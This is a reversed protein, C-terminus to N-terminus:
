PARWVRDKPYNGCRTLSSVQAGDTLRHAHRVGWRDVRVVYLWPDHMGEWLVVVRTGDPLRDV